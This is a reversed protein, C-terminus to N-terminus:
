LLLFVGTVKRKRVGKNQSNQFVHKKQLKTTKM